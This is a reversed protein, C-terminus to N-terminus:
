WSENGHCSVNCTRSGATWTEGSRLEISANGDLHRSVDIIRDSGDVVGAHCRSCHIDEGRVHKRHDGSMAGIDAEPSGVYGHCSNCALTPNTDWDQFGRRSSGNGHCYLEACGGTSRSYTGRSNLTDFRVEARGDGDIHGV